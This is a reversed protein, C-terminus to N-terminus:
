KLLIQIVNLPHVGFNVDNQLPGNLIKPFSESTKYSTSQTRVLTHAEEIRERLEWVWMNAPVPKIGPPM